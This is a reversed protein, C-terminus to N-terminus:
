NKKKLVNKLFISNVGTGTQTLLTQIQVSFTFSLNPNFHLISFDINVHWRIKKKKSFIPANILDAFESFINEVWHINYFIFAKISVLISYSDEYKKFETGEFNM